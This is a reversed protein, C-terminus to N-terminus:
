SEGLRRLREKLWRVEALLDYVADESLVGRRLDQPLRGAADEEYDERWRGDEYYATLEELGAQAAACRDLAQALAAAAAAAENLCREMRAIREIRGSLEM